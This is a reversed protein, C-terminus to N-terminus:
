IEQFGFPFGSDDISTESGYSRITECRKSPLYPSYNEKRTFAESVTRKSYSTSCSFPVIVVNNSDFLM